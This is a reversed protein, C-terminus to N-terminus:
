ANINLKLFFSCTFLWKLFIRYRLFESYRGPIPQDGYSLIVYFVNMMLVRCFGVEVPRSLHAHLLPPVTFLQPSVLLFGRTHRWLLVRMFQGPVSAFAARYSDLALTGGGGSRCLSRSVENEISNRQDVKLVPCCTYTHREQESLITHGTM